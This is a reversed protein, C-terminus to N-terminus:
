HDNNIYSIIDDYAQEKNNFNDLLLKNLQAPTIDNKINIDSFNYKSRDDHSLKFFFIFMEEIMDLTCYGVKLNVDIRGPRILAKDLKDPYNSTMILIRGPTELIGDLLNLIFSLTVQESKDEELQNNNTSNKSTINNQQQTELNFNSFNNNFYDMNQEYNEEFSNNFTNSNQKEENTTTEKIYERDLLMDNNCDIDEMVYIRDNLSINYVETKGNKLVKVTENFFLNNLQTQTTDPQLKINFIHRNTDKAIAKIISTKGTGPPGHLLIGLTHPIGKEKYWNPNNCFLDMREKVVNLHKGFVNKLSKNTNFQTMTFVLENPAMSFRISNDQNKMLSVHHEDFYYKKSGLKNNQEYFYKEKLEEIFDKLNKLKLEYSYLELSYSIDDKDDVIIKNAKCYIKDTVEFEEENNIYFYNVFKLEKCSDLNSIYFNIADITYDDSLNKDLKSKIFVIRSKIEKSMIYYINRIKKFLNKGFEM